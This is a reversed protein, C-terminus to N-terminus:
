QTPAAPTSVQNPNMAGVETKAGGQPTTAAMPVPAQEPMEEILNEGDLGMTDYIEKLQNKFPLGASILTGLTSNLMTVMASKNINEDKVVLEIDFDEDFLEKVLEPFRDSGQAKLEQVVQEVEYAAMEEDYLSKEYDNMSLYKTRVLNEALAYDLKEIVGSDGTIRVIDGISLEKRLIPIMKNQIFKSMDLMLDEIRLNYGKSAGQQEILANTAPQNAQVDDEATTGTVRQGWMYAQEEDNYSSPDIAGTQLVNVSSANDTKIAGTEFMKKFQQPTISGKLEFLGLHVIRGKIMRYNVVENLYEQIAFLMEGIGRGDNRNPVEKLRFQGYPDSEEKTIAHVVPSGNLGSVIAKGYFFSNRDDENGTLCFNPWYGYREWVEVYPIETPNLVNDATGLTLKSTGTQGNVFESKDLNLDDFEPKTMIHKETRGSSDELNEVSPDSLMNLRDVVRVDLKKDSETAKLYGTGDIAVRRLLKNLTKGFGIDDLKKKLIYRFIQAKLYGKNNRAKVEIDKTDIDINKLMTEVVWETFPIFIKKRNTIPDREKDFIGFYNKRAKKVVNKMVFQVKDTVFVLGDEWNSKESQMIRIIEKEAETPVYGSIDQM